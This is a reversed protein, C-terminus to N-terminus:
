FLPFRFFPDDDILSVWKKYLIKLEKKFQEQNREADSPKKTSISEHHILISFPTFINSYGSKILKLCLDVDNFAIKLSEDFQGAKLFKKKEIMLCAGTLALYNSVGYM